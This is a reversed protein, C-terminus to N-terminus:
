PDAPHDQHQRHRVGCLASHGRAAHDRRHGPEPHFASRFLLPRYRGPHHASLVGARLDPHQAYPGHGHRHPFSLRQHVVAASRPQRHAAFLAGDDSQSDPRHHHVLGRGHGHGRHAHGGFHNHGGARQRAATRPLFARPLLARLGCHRLHGRLRRRRHAHFRRLPHRGAPAGAHPLRAHLRDPDEM